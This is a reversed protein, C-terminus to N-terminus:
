DQTKIAYDRLGTIDGEPVIGHKTLILTKVLAYLYETPSELDMNSQFTKGKLQPFNIVFEKEIRYLVELNTDFINERMEEFIKYVADKDPHNMTRTVGSIIKSVSESLSPLHKSTLKVTQNKFNALKLYEEFVGHIERERSTKGELDFIIIDQIRNVDLSLDGYLSNLLSFIKFYEVSLYNHEKNYNALLNYSSISIPVISGDIKNQLIIIGLNDLEEIFDLVRYNNNLYPTLVKRAQLEQKPDNLSLASIKNENVATSIASRLQIVNRNDKNELFQLFRDAIEEALKQREAESYTNYNKIEIRSESIKLSDNKELANEKVFQDILIADVTFYATKKINDIISQREYKKNSTKIKYNPLLLRLDKFLTELRTSDASLHVVTPIVKNAIKFLLGDKYILGTNPDSLRNVNNGKSFAKPDLKGNIFNGTIIPIITLNTQKVNIYQGLL